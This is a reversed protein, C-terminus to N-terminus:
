EAHSPGEEEDWHKRLFDLTMEVLAEPPEPDLSAAEQTLQITARYQNLYTSCVSCREVHKDFRERLQEPVDGDLYAVLFENVDQCSLMM